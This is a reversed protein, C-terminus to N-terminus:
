ARGRLFRPPHAPHSDARCPPPVLAHAPAPRRPFGDACSHIRHWPLASPVCRRIAAYAYGFDRASCAQVRAASSHTCISRTNTRTKRSQRRSSQIKPFASRRSSSRWIKPQPACPSEEPRWTGPVFLTRPRARGISTLAMSCAIARTGRGRGDTAAPNPQRIGGSLVLICDAVAPGSVESRQGRAAPAVEGRAREGRPSPPGATRPRHDRTRHDRLGTTRNDRLGTTRCHGINSNVLSHDMWCKAVEIGYARVIESCLWENEVSTSLDIEQPQGSAPAQPYADHPHDSHASAM